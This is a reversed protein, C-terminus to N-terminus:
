GEAEGDAAGDQVSGWFGWVQERSVGMELFLTRALERM